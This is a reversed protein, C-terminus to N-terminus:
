QPVIVSLHCADIRCTGSKVGAVVVRYRQPVDAALETYTRETNEKANLRHNCSRKSKSEVGIRRGNPQKDFDNPDCHRLESSLIM